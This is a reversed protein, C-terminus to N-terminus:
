RIGRWSRRSWRRAKPSRWFGADFTASSTVTVAESVPFDSSWKPPSRRLCSRHLNAKQAKPDLVEVDIGALGDCWGRHPGALWVLSAGEVGLLRRVGVEPM